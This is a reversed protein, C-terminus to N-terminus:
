EGKKDKSKMLNYLSIILKRQEDSLSEIKLGSRDECFLLMETTTQLLQSIKILAHIPITGAGAEWSKLVAVDVKLYSALELESIGRKLRINKLGSKIYNCM